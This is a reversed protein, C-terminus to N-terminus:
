RRVKKYNNLSAKAKQPISEIIKRNLDVTGQKINDVSAMDSMKAMMADDILYKAIQVVASKIALYEYSTSNSPWGHTYTLEVLYEGDPLTKPIAYIANKRSIWKASIAVDESITGYASTLVMSAINTVPISQSSPIAAITGNKVRCTFEETTTKETLTQLTYQDALDSAWQCINSIETSSLKTLDHGLGICDTSTIYAM